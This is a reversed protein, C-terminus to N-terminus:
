KSVVIQDILGWELAEEPEFYRDREMADYFEEYTKKGNCRDVYRQTLKKKLKVINEAINLIDTAQGRAGGSPQHIMIEANPLSYRHGPEGQSTIFSGMSAAMGMAITHVPAKIYNMCDVIALGASVHGGPSNIYMNIPKESSESELFLLQACILQGMTAEIENTVFIIRDKLMRSYLDYSREGRHTNELVMPVLM